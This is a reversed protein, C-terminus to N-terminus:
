FDAVESMQVARKKEFCAKVRKDEHEQFWAAVDTGPPCNTLYAFERLRLVIQNSLRNVTDNSVRAM